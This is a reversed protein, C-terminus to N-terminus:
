EQPAFEIPENIKTLNGDPDRFHAVRIGWDKRDHPETIFLIGREKLSHVTQYVSGVHFILAVKDMSDSVVPLHDAAVAKAMLTRYLAM